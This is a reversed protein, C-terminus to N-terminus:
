LLPKNRSFDIFFDRVENEKKSIEDAYCLLPIVSSEQRFMYTNIEGGATDILTRTALGNKCLTEMCRDVERCDIGTNKSILSTDLPTNYRSYLYFIIQLLKKDAFISFVRRLTEMDAIREKISSEPETMLFFYHMDRSLRMTSLGGDQVIKTFYEYDDDTDAIESYDLFKSLVKDVFDADHILGIEIAWCLEYAYRFAKDSPMRCLQRALSMTVSQEERGYLADISVGLVESLRPLMEADPTGGREWKSVAQTTINLLLGLQEQTLQKEIRYKRIQKGIVSM